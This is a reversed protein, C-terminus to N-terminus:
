WLSSSTNMRPNNSKGSSKSRRSVMLFETSEFLRPLMQTEFAHRKSSEGSGSEVM